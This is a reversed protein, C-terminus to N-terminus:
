IRMAGKYGKFLKKLLASVDCVKMGLRM